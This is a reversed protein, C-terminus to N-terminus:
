KADGKRLLIASIPILFFFLWSIVYASSQGPITVYEGVLVFLTTAIFPMFGVLSPRKEEILMFYLPIIFFMLWGPHWFSPFTLGLIIYGVITGLVIILNTIIRLRINRDFLGDIRIQITGNMFGYLIIPIFLVIPSTIEILIPNLGLELTSFRITLILAHYLAVAIVTYAKAFPRLKSFKDSERNFSILLLFLSWLPSWLSFYAGGINFIILILFFNLSRWVIKRRTLIASMPISLFVLWGPHWAQYFVGLLIFAITSLFPMVAVIKNSQKDRARAFSKAVKKATGMREIFSEISQGSELADDMMSAYEQLTDEIVEMSVGREELAKKLQELFKNKTM